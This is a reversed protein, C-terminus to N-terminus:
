RYITYYVLCISIMKYICLMVILQHWQKYVLSAFYWYRIFFFLTILNSAEYLFFHIAFLVWSPIFEALAISLLSQQSMLWFFQYSTQYDTWQLQVPSIEVLVKDISTSGNLVPMWSENNYHHTTTSVNFLKEELRSDSNCFFKM